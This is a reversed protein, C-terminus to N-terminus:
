GILGFVSQYFRSQCCTPIFNPKSKRALTNKQTLIHRVLHIRITPYYHLYFFSKKYYLVTNGIIDAAFTIL